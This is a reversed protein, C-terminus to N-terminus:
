WISDLHTKLLAKLLVDQLKLSLTGPQTGAVRSVKAPKARAKM